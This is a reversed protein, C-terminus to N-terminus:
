EKDGGLQYGFKIGAECYGYFHRDWANGQNMLDRRSTFGLGGSINFIIQLKENNLTIKPYIGFGIQAAEQTLNMGDFETQSSSHKEYKDTAMTLSNYFSTHSDYSSFHDFERESLRMQLQFIPGFLLSFRESYVNLHQPSVRLGFYGYNVKYNRTTTSSKHYNKKGITNYYHTTASIKNVSFLMDVMLNFKNRQFNAGLSYSDFLYHEKLSVEHDRSFGYPPIEYNNDFQFKNNMGVTLSIQAYLTSSILLIIAFAILRIATM